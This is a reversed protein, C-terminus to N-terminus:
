DEKLLIAQYIPATSGDYHNILGCNSSQIEYGEDLFKQVERDFDFHSQESITKMKVM